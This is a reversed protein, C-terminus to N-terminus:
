VFRKSQRVASRQAKSQQYSVATIGAQAAQVAGVQQMETMLADALISGKADIYFQQVLSRTASQPVRGASGVRGVIGGNAFGKFTGNNLQELLGRYKNTARENVVYEGRSLRVLNSDSRGTGRGGVLGGTALAQTAVEGGDSFGFTSSLINAILKRAEIKAIDALISKAMDSFAEKADKTGTIIDVFGNTLADLGDAAVRQYAEKVEDATQLTEDFWQDLPDQTSQIVGATQAKELEGLQVRMGEANLTPDSKLRAELADRTQKQQIELLQLQLRRSEAASRAAGAQISLLDLQMDLMAQEAALQEERVEQQAQRTRNAKRENFVGEELAKLSDGEAKTKDGDAVERDIQRKNADRDRELMQIDLDAREQATLQREMMAQVLADGVRFLDDELARQRQTAEKAAREREAQERRAAAAASRQESKSLPDATATTRTVPDPKAFDELNDRARAIAADIERLQTMGQAVSQRNNTTFEGGTWADRAIQVIRAGVPEFVDKLSTVNQNNLRTGINEPLNSQVRSINRSVNERETSLEALAAAQKAKALEWLQQAARGVAGAFSDIKPAAVTAENGISAAASAAQEAKPQYKAISDDASDISTKLDAIAADAEMSESVLGMLAISVGTVALGVPGGFASLITGGAKGLVNGATQAAVQMRTLQGAAFAARASALDTATMFRATSATMQDYKRAAVLAAGGSRIFAAEQRLTAATSGVMGALFRGGLVAAIVGLTPAIKDLNQSLLNIISVLKESVGLSADVQGAYKILENNLSTMAQGITLNAKSAAAEIEPLGKLLAQFFAQSTVKGDLMQKRLGSISGNAGDIHKAAALVLTPMGEIMSNFEEARVIGAGFAQAMQLLPGAAQEASLGQVRLAASVGETVRVMQETTAGLDKQSLAMRSYLEALGNVATGNKAATDFLREQVGALEKGELGVVKLRNQLQTYKDVLNTIAQVSVGAALAGALTRLHGGIEGSSKRITETTRRTKDDVSDMARNYSQQWQRVDRDARTKNVEINVLIEDAVKAM